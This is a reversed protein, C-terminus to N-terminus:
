ICAAILSVVAVSVFLVILPEDFVNDFIPLEDREFEATVTPVVDILKPALEVVNAPNVLTVEPVTFIASLCIYVVYVIYQVSTYLISCIM